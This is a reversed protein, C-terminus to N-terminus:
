ILKRFCVCWKNKRGTLLKYNTNRIQQQITSRIRDFNSQNYYPSILIYIKYIMYQSEFSISTKYTIKDYHTLIDDLQYDPGYLGRDYLRMNTKEYSEYSEKFYKGVLYDDRIYYFDNIIKKINTSM